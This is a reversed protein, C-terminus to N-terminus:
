DSSHLVAREGLSQLVHECPVSLKISQKQKNAQKKLCFLSSQACFIGDEPWSGTTELYSIGVFTSIHIKKDSTNPFGLLGCTHDLWSKKKEWSVQPKWIMLRETSVSLLLTYFAWLYCSFKYIIGYINFYLSM